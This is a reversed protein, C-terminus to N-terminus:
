KSYYKNFLWVYLWKPKRYYFDEGRQGNIYTYHEGVCLEFKFQKYYWRLKEIPSLSYVKVINDYIDDDVSLETKFECLNNKYFCTGMLHIDHHSSVWKFKVKSYPIKAILNKNKM